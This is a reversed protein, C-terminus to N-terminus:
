VRYLTVVEAKPEFMEPFCEMGLVKEHDHINWQAIRREVIFVDAIHRVEDNGHGIVFM